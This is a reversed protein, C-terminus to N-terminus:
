HKTPMRIFNNTLVLRTVTRTGGATCTARGRQLRRLWICGFLVYPYWCGERVM